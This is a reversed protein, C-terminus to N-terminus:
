TQQISDLEATWDITLALVGTVQIIANNGLVVMTANAAVLAAEEIANIVPVGVLVGAAGTTRVCATIEYGAGAPTTAEYAVVKAHFTYVGAIAGLAFTIVDDTVAGITQGTGTDGGTTAITITNTVPNGTTTVNAGGLININFAADANVIGGFDGTLTEVSPLATGDAFVQFQSM